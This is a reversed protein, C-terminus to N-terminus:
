SRAQPQDLPLPTSTAERRAFDGRVLKRSVQTPLM